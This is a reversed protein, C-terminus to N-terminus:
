GEQIEFEVARRAVQKSAALAESYRLLGRMQQLYEKLTCTLYNSPRFQLLQKPRVSFEQIVFLRDIADDRVEACNQTVVRLIWLIDLGDM